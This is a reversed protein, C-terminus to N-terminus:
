RLLGRYQKSGMLWLDRARFAERMEILVAVELVRGDKGSKIAKRWKSGSKLFRLSCDSLDGSRIQELAQHLGQAAPTSRIDLREIMRQAYRRFRHYGQAAYETPDASTASALQGAVNVLEEFDGWSIATNLDRKESHARILQNGMREFGKLAHDIVKKSMELEKDCAHQADRWIRGCIRDHTEIITDGIASQWELACVALIAMRRNDSIERLQHGFYSEGMRRLRTIQHHPIDSLLDEKLTLNQLFELRDLLRNMDASNGGVEFQRLWVFRSLRGDIQELTLADLNARDDQDLRNSIQAEVDREIFIIADACLRTITTIRPLIIKRDRCENVLKLLLEEASACNAGVQIVKIGSHRDLRVGVRFRFVLALRKAYSKSSESLRGWLPSLLAANFHYM